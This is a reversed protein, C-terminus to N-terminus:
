RAARLRMTAIYVAGGFMSHMVPEGTRAALKRWPADLGELSSVSRLAAPLVLLNLMAAHRPAWKLGSAVVKAGPKLHAVLHDLADDRQLIDHTFHLLAADALRQLAADEAPSCLLEVNSWGHREVRRRARDIMEPSQEVGVIRGRAGVARHLLEFSLGTGCGIDLVTDGPQPALSAVARRRVPELLALELDYVLARRRYQGLAAARNPGSLHKQPTPM